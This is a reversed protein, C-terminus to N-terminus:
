NIDFLGTHFCAIEDGIYIYRNAKMEDRELLSRQMQEKFITHIYRELIPTLENKTEYCPHKFCWREELAQESLHKLQEYWCPVYAFAFLENINKRM